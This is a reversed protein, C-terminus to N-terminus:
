SRGVGNKNNENKDGNKFKNLTLNVTDRRDFFNSHCLINEIENNSM